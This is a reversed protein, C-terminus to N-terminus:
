KMLYFQLSQKWSLINHDLEKQIKSKDLVSFAPREAPRPFSETKVPLIKIDIRLLNFIESAFDFWSAEGVNSYHYIGFEMSISRLLYLILSALDGAYTPSGIQDDVVSIEERESGLRLMTKVFNHGYESYVWSTRIIFYETLIQQVYEEGKLKSAGYVNIPNPEDNETYPTTKTGDFVFDTSIHILVCDTELCAEALNKVAEANILYAEGRNTEALDVATYAACNICYDFSHNTFFTNVASQSTIDLEEKDTFVFQIEPYDKAVDQLCRGVQGRSGTVLVKM